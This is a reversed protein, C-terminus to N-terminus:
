VAGCPSSPSTTAPRSPRSRSCPRACTRPSCPPRAGRGHGGDRDAAPAPRVPHTGKRRETVGDTYFVLADGRHLRVSARPAVITDMLGLATGSVGVLSTAATPACSCPSTTAPSTCPLTSCELNSRAAPLGARAYLLLRWGARGADRQPPEAHPGPRAHDLALAHLVDRVLGTVVAAGVDKGSVDGVVLMWGQQPLEVVDYFDGGVALEGGAPM